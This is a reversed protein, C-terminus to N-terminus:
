LEDLAILEVNRLAGNEVEAIMCSAHTGGRPYTTSGPNLYRVGNRVDDSPVHLHGHVVVQTGEPLERAHSLIHVMFFRVGALDICSSQPLSLAWDNNGRVAITPAITELQWLIDEREVDGACLVRDCDAFADYLRRDFRGHLDSVIGIRM